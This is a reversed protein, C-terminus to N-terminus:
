SVINGADIKIQSVVRVFKRLPARCEDPPRCGTSLYFRYNERTRKKELKKARRRDMAAKSLPARCSRPPEGGTTACDAYTRRIVGSMIQLQERLEETMRELRMMRAGELALIRLELQAHAM